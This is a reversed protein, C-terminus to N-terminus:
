LNTFVKFKHINSHFTGAPVVVVAQLRWRGAQSLDGDVTVYQVTGDTGDTLWECDKTESTKDPLQFVVQMSSADSLDVVEDAQDKVLLRFATGIDAVHIEAAM